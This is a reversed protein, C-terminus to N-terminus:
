PNEFLKLLLNGAVRRRYDATARLDDIPHVQERVIRAASRLRDLSLDGQEIMREVEPLRIVTPGVSGWALRIKKVKNEQLELLAALSATAIAM